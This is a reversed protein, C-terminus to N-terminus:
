DVPAALHVGDARQVSLQVDPGAICSLVHGGASRDRTVGHLHLGPGGVGAVDPGTRFGVLVATRQGLDFVTQTAVVSALSAYPKPQAPVSRTVLSTFTGRVRVAVMGGATGALDNVLTMLSACTTGPPIPASSDPTFAIAEAFPTRTSAAIPTPRGDTGVRYPVGGVIVLEGDLRDLTGLGIANRSPGLTLVSSLPALGDYNPSILSDYTGVQRVPSAVEAQAPAPNTVLAVALVAILPLSRVFTTTTM